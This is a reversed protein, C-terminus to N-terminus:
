LSNLQFHHRFQHVDNKKGSKQLFEIQDSQEFKFSQWKKKAKVHVLVFDIYYQSSDKNDICVLYSGYGVGFITTLFPILDSRTEKVQVIRQVPSVTDIKVNTSQKRKLLVATTDQSLGISANFLSILVIIILSKIQM